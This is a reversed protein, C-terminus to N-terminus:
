KQEIEKPIPTEPSYQKVISTIFNRVEKQLGELIDVNKTVVYETAKIIPMLIQKNEDDLKQGTDNFIQLIFDFHKEKFLDTFYGLLWERFKKIEVYNKLQLASSFAAKVNETDAKKLCQMSKSKYSYLLISASVSRVFSDKKKIGLKLTKEAFVIAGIPDGKELLQVSKTLLLFVDDPEVLLGEDIWKEAEGMKFTISALARRRLAMKNNPNLQIAKNYCLISEPDHLNELIEARLTWSTSQKDNLHIAEDVIGLAETYKQMKNLLYAKNSLGLIKLDRDKNKILSDSYEKAEEFRKLGTLSYLMAIATLPNTPEVRAADTASKMGKEYEGETCYLFAEVAYNLARTGKDKRGIKKLAAVEEKAATFNDNLLFGLLRFQLLKYKKVGIAELIYLSHEIFKSIDPTEKLVAEEISKMLKHYEEMLEEKSYWIRLFNVFLSIRKRGLPFRMERWIRFLREKVEYHVSKKRKLKLPEVFGSEEMRKLQVNVVNVNYESLKAIETPTLPGEAVALTDFIKRPQTSLKEMRAQYFPTLEDLLTLLANEIDVLTDPKCLIDCLSLVLRPNGGTLVAIARIKPRYKEFEKLIDEKKELELKKKVLEEVEDNSLDKLFQIEFFNYFPQEYSAIEGFISPAAGIIMLNNQEQLISRFRKLDDETLQEFILHVNDMLLLPMKEKKLKSLYDTAEEIISEEDSRFIKVDEEELIRHFLDPLKSISYEEESLKIPEVLNLLEPANKIRYYILLLLHSKGIGRPGILLLYFPIRKVAHEKIKSLIGRLLEERGVTLQKLVEKDIIDPTFRYLTM